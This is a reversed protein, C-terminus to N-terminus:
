LCGLGMESPSRLLQRPPPRPTPPILSNAVVIGVLDGCLHPRYSGACESPAQDQYQLYMIDSSGRKTLSGVSGQGKLGAEGQRPTRGVTFAWMMAAGTPITRPQTPSAPVLRSGPASVGRM